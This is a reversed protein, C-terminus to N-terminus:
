RDHAHERAPELLRFLAGGVDVVPDRLDAGSPLGAETALRAGSAFQALAHRHLALDFRARARADAWRLPGGAVTGAPAPRVVLEFAFREGALELVGTYAGPAPPAAGSPSRLTFGDATAAVILVAHAAAPEGAPTLRLAFRTRFRTAVRRDRSCRGTLLLLRAAVAVHFGAWAVLLALAGGGLPWRGAQAQVLAFAIAGLTVLLVLLPPTGELSRPRPSRTKPTVAFHRERQATFTAVIATPARALNYVTSEFPRLHGQGLASCALLTALFYPVFHVVFSAADTQLPSIGTLLMVVPLAYIFVHRWGELNSAVHLLYWRRQAPSLGSKGLLNERLALQVAGRAWRLRQVNFGAADFPAIGVALIEPHFISRWGAAHLRLSTHVDETVTGTAFGGIGDLARRRIVAASGTLMTANARDRSSQIVHHFFSAGNSTTRRPSLHQYSDANFFEQPTQVFAVRPDRFYGLTRDLFRADAVHDADLLVVFEGSAHALAHNLNGAKADAREARALYRCGLEGALGRLESRDGDDLLWTEHPYRIALAAMATRRIMEFPEDVTTVFVDVRRGPPPPPAQRGTIRVASLLFTMLRAFGLLEAGLVLWSFAPFAPNVVSPRWAFYAGAAVCVLLPLAYRAARSSWAASLNV